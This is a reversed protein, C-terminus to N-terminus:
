ELEDVMQKLQKIEEPSLNKKGLISAILSNAAGDYMQNILETTEYERAQEKTILARCIFGPEIREIANKEICKSIITYTTTRKWGIEEGLIERVKKASIDGNKWLVNMVRLEAKTLRNDKDM